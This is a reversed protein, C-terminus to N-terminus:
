INCTSNSQLELTAITGSIGDTRNKLSITGGLTDAASKALFLGLGAGKEGGVRKFPAFLDVNEDCGIGEDIVVLAF